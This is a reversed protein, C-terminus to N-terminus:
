RPQAHRSGRSRPPRPPRYLKVGPIQRFHTDLTFVACNHELALAAIILDSLPITIGQRLLSSGLQGTRRWTRLSTELFPLGALNSVITEAEGRTRCGQLLEALVVGVLAVRDRDILGDVAQKEPSQPRHLFEIWVSSDVVIV